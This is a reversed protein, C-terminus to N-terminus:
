REETILLFYRKVVERLETPVERRALIASVRPFNLELRLKGEEVTGLEFPTGKTFLQKVGGLEGLVGSIRLERTESPITLPSFEGSREGPRTGPEEGGPPGGEEAPREEEGVGRSTEGLGEEEGGAQGAAGPPREGKYDELKEEAEVLGEALALAAQLNRELEAGGLRPPQRLLEELAGGQLRGALRELEGELERPLGAEGPPGEELSSLAEALRERVEEQLTPTASGWLEEELQELREQLAEAAGAEPEPQPARELTSLRGQLEALEREIEALKPLLGEEGAPQEAVSAARRPLLSVPQPLGLLINLAILAILLFLGRRKLPLAKAPDIRRPLRRSLIPILERPGRGRHLEYLSSLRENLELRRDIQFLVRPLNLKELYGWLFGGLAAALPVGVLLYFGIGGALGLLWAVQYGIMLLLALATPPCAREFGRVWRARRELRLVLRSFEM